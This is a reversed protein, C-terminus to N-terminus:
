SVARTALRRGVAGYFDLPRRGVGIPTPPKPTRVPPAKRHAPDIRRCNKGEIVPHRAILVGDEFIRLETVHHQVELTRRRTTDPVSYLNGGVSIMGEKSVRREITLVASYPNAPLPQLAPHEEAFAEDVVRGTTAHVRPNAIEACWKDFQANLDDLNRFTRGLFFDQRIYRFPREVKGKTKARYPQCARPAADYHGLLSVLSPNYTIVGDSSEGIVATKMRDYLVEEPAGGMADFAGVHCRMVTQLNQSACFRGWLWRSHGLVMSFLWVKRVVGPEDTFITSFEAFDVQAQRGPPTEFRREFQALKAPRVERVFDKVSTYGGAYGRERIERLLRRATLDPFASLRERLYDEFPEIVRARPARPKYVPAELGRALYKRVTKRDLGTQRAIAGVGLGQRKLDQIVVIEGLRVM